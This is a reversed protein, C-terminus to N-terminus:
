SALRYESIPKTGAAGIRLTLQTISWRAGLPAVTIVVSDM